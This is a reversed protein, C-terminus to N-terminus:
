EKLGQARLYALGIHKRRMREVIDKAEEVKALEVEARDFLCVRLFQSVNDFGSQRALLQAEIFKSPELRLHVVKERNEKDQM